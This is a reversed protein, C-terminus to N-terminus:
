NISFSPAKLIDLKFNFCFSLPEISSVTILSVAEVNLHLHQIILSSIRFSYKGDLHACMKDFYPRTFECLRFIFDPLFRRANASYFCIWLFKFDKLQGSRTVLPPFPVTLTINKGAKGAALSFSFNEEGASRLFRAFAIM